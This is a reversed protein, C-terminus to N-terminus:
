SRSPPTSAQPSNSPRLVSAYLWPKRRKFYPRTSLTRGVECGLDLHLCRMGEESGQFVEEWFPYSIHDPGYIGGHSWPTEPSSYGSAAIILHNEGARSRFINYTDASKQNRHPPLPAASPPRSVVTWTNSERISSMVVQAGRLALTRVLQWDGVEDTGLLAIGLSGSTHFIEHKSVTRPYSIKDISNFLLRSELGKAERAIAGVLVEPYGLRESLRCTWVQLTEELSELRGMYELPPLTVVFIDSQAAGEKSCILSEVQSLLASSHGRLSPSVQFTCFDISGQNFLELARPARLSLELHSYTWTSTYLDTYNESPVSAETWTDPDISVVDYGSGADISSLVEGLPSIVCSGGSFSVGMEEGALDAAVLYASAEKARAWWTMSPTKEDVWATPLCIVSPSMLGTMEPFEIDACIVVSCRVGKVEFIPPMVNGDTAWTTDAIYPHVKRYNHVLGDWNIVAAANHVLGTTEELELYGYVIFAQHQEALHFLAQFTPGLRPEAFDLAEQPTGFLYGTAFLEPLVVLDAGQILASEALQIATRLNDEVQRADQRLQVYGVKLTM